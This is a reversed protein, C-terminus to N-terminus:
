IGDIEIKKFEVKQTEISHYVSVRLCREMSADIIIVLTPSIDVFGARNRKEPYSCVFNLKM